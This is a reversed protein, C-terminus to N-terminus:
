AALLRGLQASSVLPPQYRAYGGFLQECGHSGDIQSQDNRTVLGATHAVISDNRCALAHQRPWALCSRRRARQWLRINNTVHAAHTALM